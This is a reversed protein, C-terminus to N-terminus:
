VGGDEIQKQWADYQDPFRRRFEVDLMVNMTLLNDGLQALEGADLTGLLRMFREASTISRDSFAALIKEIAPTM